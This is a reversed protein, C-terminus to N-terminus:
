PIYTSKSIHKVWLLNDVNNNLRDGDVHLVHKHGEGRSLFHDAVLRHVRVTSRKGSESILTVGVFGRECVFTKRIYAKRVLSRGDDYDYRRYVSRVRGHSSVQYIDLDPYLNEDLTKWVEEM